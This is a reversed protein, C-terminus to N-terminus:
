GFLLFAFPIVTTLLSFALREVGAQAPTPCYQPSEQGYRRWHAM